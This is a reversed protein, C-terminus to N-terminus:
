LRPGGRFGRPQGGAARATETAQVVLVKDGVALGAHVEAHFRNMLGILVTQEQIQRGNKVLVQYATADEKDEEPLRKGLAAVPLLPVNDARALVFFMQTSMGTMLQRDQNEVDVLAHYLVVDSIIEPTPLIQRVIGSWRKELNGLTTFYVEQGSRIRSVDAEAIQARVTMVDLDALQMIVPASQSANLTQGERAEQSVVTGDIPAFVTTYSLNTESVELASQAEEIQAQLSEARAQAVKLATQSQELAEQSVAKSEILQQNRQHQQDALLIQAEQEVLQAQLTRLRAQNARVQAQYVRPDIEALLDGAKVVDGIEVHIKKLQGSVQAGVDVYEKPELKGQATVIEEISGQRVAMEQSAAAQSSRGNGGLALLTMTIILLAVIGLGYKQRHALSVKSWGVKM